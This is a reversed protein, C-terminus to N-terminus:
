RLLRRKIVENSEPFSRALAGEYTLGTVGTPTPMAWSVWAQIPLGAMDAAALRRHGNTVVLSGDAHEIVQIPPPSHGEDLWESYRVADNWKGGWRLEAQPDSWDFERPRLDRPRFTVLEEIARGYDGQFEDDILWTGDPRRPVNAMTTRSSAGHEYPALLEKWVRSLLLYKSIDRPPQSM